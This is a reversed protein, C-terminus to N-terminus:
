YLRFRTFTPQRHYTNCLNRIPYIGFQRGVYRQTSFCFKSDLSHIKLLKQSPIKIKHSMEGQKKRLIQEKGWKRLRNVLDPLLLMLFPQVSRIVMSPVLHTLNCWLSCQSSHVCIYSSHKCPPLPLTSMSVHLNSLSPCHFLPCLYM